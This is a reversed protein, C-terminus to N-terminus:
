ILGIRNPPWFRFCARGIINETPLFGWIHSDNSNNRNDGMMFLKDEPVQAPGWSYEPLEAIYDEKQPQNDLYVKGNKIEV